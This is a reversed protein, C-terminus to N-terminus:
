PQASVLRDFARKAMGVSIFKKWNDDLEKIFKHANLVDDESINLAAALDAITVCPASVPADDNAAVTTEPDAPM